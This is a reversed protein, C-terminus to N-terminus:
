LGASMLSERTEVAAAAEPVSESSTHEAHANVLRLWPPPQDLGSLSRRRTRMMTYHHLLELLFKAMQQGFLM